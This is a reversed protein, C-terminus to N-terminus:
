LLLVFTVSNDIKYPLPHINASVDAISAQVFTDPSRTFMPIGDVMCIQNGAYTLADNSLARIHNFGVAWDM